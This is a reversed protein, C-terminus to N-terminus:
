FAWGIQTTKIVRLIDRFLGMIICLLFLWYVTRYIQSYDEYFRSIALEIYRYTLVVMGRRFSRLTFIIKFDRQIEPAVELTYRM